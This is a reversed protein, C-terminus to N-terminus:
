CNILYKNILSEIIDDKEEYISRFIDIKFPDSELAEKLHIVASDMNKILALNAALMYNIEANNAFNELAKNLIDIKNSAGKRDSIFECYDIWIQPDSNDLDIGINYAEEAKEYSGLKENILANLHWYESDDSIIKIAKNIHSYAAFYNREHYLIFAQGYYAESHNPDHKCAKEFYALAEKNNELKTYAEGLYYFADADSPEKELYYKLSEIGKIFEQNFIQCIGLHFYSFSINSDIAIAFEIADISEEYEEIKCYVGSLNSWALRSYPDLSLYQKYYKISEDNLELKELCFAIEFIVTANEPDIDIAQRFYKVAFDYQGLHELTTGANILIEETEDDQFSIANDFQQLAKSIEGASCYAVGLLFSASSNYREIKLLDKLIKMAKYHMGDRILLQAKKQRLSLASPHISLGYGLADKALKIQNSELYHDIIQEFEFIDFYYRSKKELMEVYRSIVGGEDYGFIDSKETM